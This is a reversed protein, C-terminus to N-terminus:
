NARRRRQGRKAIILAIALIALLITCRSVEDVSDEKNPPPLKSGTLISFITIFLKYIDKHLRSAAQTTIEILAGLTSSIGQLLPHGANKEDRSLQNSIFSWDTSTEKERQEQTGKYMERLEKMKENKMMVQWVEPDSALSAIAGKINPDNGILRFADDRASSRVVQHPLDNSSFLQPPEVWCQLEESSISKESTPSFTEHTDFSPCTNREHEELSSCTSRADDHIPMDNYENIATQIDSTAELAEEFSPPLGFIDHIYNENISSSENEQCFDYDPFIWDDSALPTDSHEKSLGANQCPPSPITAVTSLSGNPADTVITRSAILSGKVINIAHPPMMNM